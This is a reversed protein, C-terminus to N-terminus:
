GKRLPVVEGAGSQAPTSGCYQSWADMLRRRKELLDGRHYAAETKNAIAHALSSEVIDNPFATTESAWTKFSARLGHPVYGPRMERMLKLMGADSLNKGRGAGVFVFENRAERPLAELIEIVRGSLPVRHQRGAKMRAGPITWVKEALDIESWRAFRTEGTRAATLVTFELAAAVVGERARLASMFQPIDKFPLSPHNKASSAKPAPLPRGAKVWKLVKEIRNKIRAATAGITPWIPALAANIVAADITQVPRSGLSPYVYQAMTNRWQQRHKKNRWQDEYLNIFQEAAEKFTVREAKAARAADREVRRHEIPDVGAALLKRAERALERAEDLSFTHIPGLGMSRKRKGRTYIFLWSRNTPSIVQLFLNHGDSYRGPEKLKTIKTTTLAMDILGGAL